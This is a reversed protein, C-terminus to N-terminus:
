ARARARGSGRPDEFPHRGRDNTSPPDKVGALNRSGKIGAKSSGWFDLQENGPSLSQAFVNVIMDFDFDNMRNQYQASDVIRLDTKIGLKELNRMFPQIWREFTPSDVLIEFRFLEGKANVLVNNKLQWGAKGLLEIAKRM